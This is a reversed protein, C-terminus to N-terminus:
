GVLPTVCLESRSGSPVIQIARAPRGWLGFGLIWALTLVGGLQMNMAGGPQIFGTSGFITITEVSQEVFAVLGLVGLWRPLSDGRLAVLAVPAMMTTTAGTLVPGLFLAVDLVMRAIAPDLSGAHLALGGWTWTWVAISTAYVAAGFFFVDRHPAPLMARLLAAM